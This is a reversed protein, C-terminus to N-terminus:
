STFVKTYATILGKCIPCQKHGKKRMEEDCKYCTTIHLCPQYLINPRKLLCISCMFPEEEKKEDEEEKTKKRVPSNTIDIEDKVKRKRSSDLKIVCDQLIVETANWLNLDILTHIFLDYKVDKKILKDIVLGVKHHDVLDRSLANQVLLPSELVGLIANCEGFSLIGELKKVTHEDIETYSLLGNPHFASSSSSSSSSLDSPSYSGLVGVYGLASSSSSSSVSPHYTSSSSPPFSLSYPNYSPSVPNYLPTRAFSIKFPRVTTTTTTTTMMDNSTGIAVPIIPSTSSIPPYEINGIGRGILNHRGHLHNQDGYVTCLGGFVINHNGHVLANQGHITNYDGTIRVARGTITNNNGIVQISDGRINVNEFRYERTQNNNNNLIITNNILSTSPNFYMPLDAVLQKFKTKSMCMELAIQFSTTTINKEKILRLLGEFLHKHHVYNHVKLDISFYNAIKYCVPSKLYTSLITESWGNLGLSM